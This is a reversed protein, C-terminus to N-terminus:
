CLFEPLIQLHLLLCRIRRLHTYSVAIMAALVNPNVNAAKGADNILSAFSSYGGGPKRTEMFTGKVVAAVTNANQTSSDYKHTMFQYIGNDNLFNRPDM